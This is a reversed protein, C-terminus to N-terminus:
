VDDGGRTPLALMWVPHEYDADKGGYQAFGLLVWGQALLENAAHTGEAEAVKEYVDPM